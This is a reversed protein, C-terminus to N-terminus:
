RRVAHNRSLDLRLGAPQGEWCLVEAVEASWAALDGEKAFRAALERQLYGIREQNRVCVAVANPDYPNTPEALLEVPDGVEIGSLNINMAKVGAVPVIM